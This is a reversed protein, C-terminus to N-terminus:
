KAPDGLCWMKVTGDLSGSLAYRGCPTFCVSTVRQRHGALVRLCRGTELDWYRVHFDSSGSLAYQGDPSIAVSTVTAGHGRFTRICKGTTLDWYKLTRDTAGSLAHVGDPHIDVSKICFKEYKDVKKGGFVEIKGYYKGRHGDLERICKREALNWYRLGAGSAGGALAYKGDPSIKVGYYIQNVIQLVTLSFEAKTNSDRPHCYHMNHHGGALAAPRGIGCSQYRSLDVSYVSGLDSFVTECKGTELHWYRLTGDGFGGSLAYQGYPGIKVCSKGIKHGRLLQLLKGTELDWYRLPGDHHGSLLYRGDPSISISFTAGSKIRGDKEIEATLTLVCDGPRAQRKREALVEAPDRQPSAAPKSQGCGITFFLGVFLFLWVKNMNRM